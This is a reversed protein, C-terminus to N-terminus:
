VKLTQLVLIWFYYKFPLLCVILIFYIVRQVRSKYPLITIPPPIPKPTSWDIHLEVNVKGGSNSCSSPLQKTVIPKINMFGHMTTHSLPFLWCYAVKYYFKNNWRENFAWCKELFLGSMMLLKLHIQLMQNVCAHPSRGYDHRLPFQEDDPARVINAADPKCVCTTVPRDSHFSSMMLLELQIQLM